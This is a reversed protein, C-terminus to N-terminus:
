SLTERTSQHIKDDAGILRFKMLIRKSSASSIVYKPDNISKMCDNYAQLYEKDGKDAIVQMLGSISISAQKKLYNNAISQLMESQTVSSM